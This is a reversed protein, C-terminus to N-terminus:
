ETQSKRIHLIVSTSRGLDKVVEENKDVLELTIDNYTIDNPNNLKLYTMESPAYEMYGWDAETQVNINPFGAIIKSPIGKGFNQSQHTFTPCRLYYNGRAIIPHNSSGIYWGYFAGLTHTPPPGANRDAYLSTYGLRYNFVQPDEKFGFLESVDQTSAAYVGPKDSGNIGDVSPITIMGTGYAVAFGDGVAPNPILGEGKRVPPDPLAIGTPGDLGVYQKQATTLSSNYPDSQDVMKVIEAQNMNGDLQSRGWLSSGSSSQVGASAVQPYLYDASSIGDYKDLTATMTGVASRLSIKPYLAHTTTGLPKFFRNRTPTRAIAVANGSVCLRSDTLIYDTGGATLTVTTDEGSIMISIHSPDAGLTAGTTHAGSHMAALTTTYGVDDLNPTFDTNTNAYYEVEKMRFAGDVVVSHYLRVTPHADGQKQYYEVMYDWFGVGDNLAFGRPYERGDAATPRTFGIRWGQTALSVDWTMTGGIIDFPRGELIATNDLFDDFETYGANANSVYTRTGGTWVFDDTDENWSSVTGMDTHYSTKTHSAGNNFNWVFGKTYTGDDQTGATLCWINDFYPPYSIYRKLNREIMEALGEGDYVGEELPIPHPMKGVEKLSVAPVIAFKRATQKLLEGVYVSFSMNNMIRYFGNRYFSIHKLAVESNAPITLTPNINNQFSAPNQMGPAQASVPLGRDNVANQSVSNYKDQASSCILLSM